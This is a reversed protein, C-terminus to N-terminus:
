IYEGIKYLSFDESRKCAIILKNPKKIKSASLKYSAIIIDLLEQQMLTTDDMRTIGSGLIPICVDQQGYHKDVESWLVKLCDILEQRTLRGLGEKDLKAFAMLLYDQNPILVGSEYKDKNKYKSKGKSKVKAHEILEQMNIDPYKTLYQGCVSTPKIEGPAEGVDITYCEDFPIVKKCKKMKFIDKYRVVITYNKGKITRWWKISICIKYLVMILLFILLFLIARNIIINMGDSFNKLLKISKFMEEPVVTLIFSFVSVAITASKKYFDSM